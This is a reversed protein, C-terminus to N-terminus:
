GASVTLVGSDSWLQGAVAPDSTPLDNIVIVSEGGSYSISINVTTAGTNANKTIDQFGNESRVPGTFTTNAM